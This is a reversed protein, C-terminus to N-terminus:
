AALARVLCGVVWTPRGVLVSKTFRLMTWGALVLANQRALEKEVASRATRKELGDLEIAVRRDPYAFDLFYRDDAVRLEHQRIPLPLGADRVLRLFQGELTSGRPRGPGRATLIERLAASGPRRRLRELVRMDTTLGLRLASEVVDDVVDPPLIGALDGLTREPATVRLGDLVRTEVSTWRAQHVRVGRAKHGAHLDITLEVTGPACHELGYLAGAARHSIASRRGGWLYAAWLSQHWSPPSSGLRFTLPPLLRVWVHAKVRRYVAQSSGGAELAQEYSFAGCQRAATQEIHRDLAPM